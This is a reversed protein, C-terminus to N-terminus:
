EIGSKIISSEEPEPDPASKLGTIVLPFIDSMLITLLPIPYEEM